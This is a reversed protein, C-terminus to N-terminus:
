RITARFLATPSIREFACSMESGNGVLTVGTPFWHIGDTSTEISYEVGHTTPFALIIAPHITLAPVPLTGTTSAAANQSITHPIGGIMVTAERRTGTLNPALSFTITADGTGSTHSPTAWSPLSTISWSGSAALEVTASGTGNVISSSSSVATTGPGAPFSAELQYSGSDLDATGGQVLLRYTGAPLTRSISFNLGAGGNTDYTIQNGAHDYLTARTDTTGSSSLVVPGGATSFTFLDLDGIPDISRATTGPAPIPSATSPQRINLTYDGTRATSSGAGVRLWYRGPALLREIRFNYAAGGNADYTIQNGAHDYLVADADTDGTSFIWCRGALNVDFHFLDLDGPIALSAPRTTAPAEISNAFHRWSLTYDGTQVPSSGGRVLLYCSAGSQFLREILFNYATGGNDDYTIQNGAQDYLTARTDTSGTTFLWHRGAAPTTIHYLDLEDPFQLSAALNPSDFPVAFRPGRVHLQYAGTDLATSGASIGLYYTGTTLLREILFNYATGGGNDDYTIQNGAQDYLTARTDTNGTTHFWHRGPVTVVFKFWDQDGPSDLAGPLDPSSITTATTITNGHDSAHLTAISALLAPMILLRKM